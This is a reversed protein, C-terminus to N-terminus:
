ANYEQLRKVYSDTSPLSLPPGTLMTLVMRLAERGEAADSAGEVRSGHQLGLLMTVGAVCGRLYLSFDERFVSPDVETMELAGLFFHKAKRLQGSDKLVRALNAITVAISPNATESERAEEIGLM